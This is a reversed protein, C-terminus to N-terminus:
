QTQATFTILGQVYQLVNQLDSLPPSPPSLPPPPSKSELNHGVSVIYAIYARTKCEVIHPAVYSFRHGSALIPQPRDQIYDLIYAEGESETIVKKPDSKDSTHDLWWVEDSM